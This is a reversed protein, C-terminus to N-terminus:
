ADELWGTIIARADLPAIPVTLLVYDGVSAEQAPTFTQSTAMQGAKDFLHCYIWFLENDGSDFVKLSAWAAGDASLRSGLFASAIFLKKNAPVTYLKVTGAEAQVESAYVRVSNREPWVGDIGLVPRVGRWLVKDTEGTM